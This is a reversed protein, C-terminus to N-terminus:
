GKRVGEGGGVGWATVRGGLAAAAVIRIYRIAQGLGILDEAASDREPGSHACVSATRRRQVRALRSEGDPSRRGSLSCLKGSAVSELGDLLTERRKKDGDGCRWMVGQFATTHFTVVWFLAEKTRANAQMGTVRRGCGTASGASGAHASAHKPPPVNTCKTRQAPSRELGGGEGGM